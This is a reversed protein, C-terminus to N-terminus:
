VVGQIVTEIGINVVLWVTSGIAIGFAVNNVADILAQARCWKM